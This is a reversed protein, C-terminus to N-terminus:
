AQCSDTPVQLGAPMPIRALVDLMSEALLTSMDFMLGGVRLAKQAVHLPLMGMDLAQDGWGQLVDLLFLHCGAQHRHARVRCEFSAVCDKLVPVAVQRAPLTDGCLLQKDAAAGSLMGCALVRDAMQASPVNLVCEGTELLAQASRCSERVVCALMPREWPLLSYWSLAMANSQGHQSTGLLLVTGPSLLGTIASAPLEIKM